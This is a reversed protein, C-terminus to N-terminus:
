PIQIALIDSYDSAVANGSLYARARLRYTSNPLLNTLTVTTQVLPAYDGSVSSIPEVYSIGSVVDMPILSGGLDRVIDVLGAQHTVIIDAQKRSDLPGVPRINLSSYSLVPVAPRITVEFGVRLGSSSGNEAWVYHQFVGPKTIKFEDVTSHSILPVDTEWTFDDAQRWWKYVEANAVPRTSILIDSSSNNGVFGGGVPEGILTVTPKIPASVVLSETPMPPVSRDSAFLCRVRYLTGSSSSSVTISNQTFSVNYGSDGASVNAGLGETSELSGDVATVLLSAPFLNKAHDFTCTYPPSAGSAYAEGSFAPQIAEIGLIHSGSSLVLNGSHAEVFLSGSQETIRSQGLLIGNGSTIKVNDATVPDLFLVGSEGRIVLQNSEEYINAYPSSGLYIGGSAYLSRVFADSNPDFSSWSLETLELALTTPDITRISIGSSTQITIDETLGNLSLVGRNSFTISRDTLSSTIDLGSGAIFVVEGTLSTGSVSIGTLGSQFNPSIYFDSGSRTVSITGKGYLKIDGTIREGDDVGISTVFVEDYPIFYRNIKGSADLSVLKGAQTIASSSGTVLSNDAVPLYNINIYPQNSM